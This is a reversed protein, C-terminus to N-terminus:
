MTFTETTGSGKIQREHEGSLVMGELPGIGRGYMEERVQRFRSAITAWDHVQGSQSALWEMQEIDHTLKSQVTRTVLSHGQLFRQQAQEFLQLAREDQDLQHCLLAAQLMPKADSNRIKTLALYDDLAERWHGQSYRHGARQLRAQVSEPCSQVWQDLTKSLGQHNELRGLLGVWNAWAEPYEARLEVAKSFSQLAEENLRLASQTVGLTNYYTADSRLEIAQLIRQRGAEHNGKQHFLLGLLHLAEPYHPARRHVETYLAEAESYRGAQHHEVATQMLKTLPKM